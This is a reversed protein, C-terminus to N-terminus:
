KIGFLGKFRQWLSGSESKEATGAQPSDVLVVLHEGERGVDFKQRVEEELGRETELRQLEVELKDERETLEALQVEARERNEKAYESKQYAGWTGKAFVVVLVFLVLLTVKSFLFRRIRYKERARLM